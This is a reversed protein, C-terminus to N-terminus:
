AVPMTMAVTKYRVQQSTTKMNAESYSTSIIVWLPTIACKVQLM